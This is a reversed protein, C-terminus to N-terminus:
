TARFRRHTSSAADGDPRRMFIRWGDRVESNAIVFGGNTQCCWSVEDSLAVTILSDVPAADALLVCTRGAGGAEGAGGAGQPGPSDGSSKACSSLLPLLLWFGACAPRALRASRM